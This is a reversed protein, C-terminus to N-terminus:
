FHDIMGPVSYMPMPRACQLDFSCDLLFHPESPVAIIRAIPPDEQIFATDLVPLMAGFDQALHWTDLPLASTSRMASTIKSPKYRYEAYREQYGFVLDDDASLSGM